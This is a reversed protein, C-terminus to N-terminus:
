KNFVRYTRTPVEQMWKFYGVSYINGVNPKWPDHIRLTTGMGSPDDDGRMGVVVIMHGPSGVGQSYGFADWLMDLMLPSRSLTSRFLDLMWSMPPHVRLGHATAYRRGGTIADDTSSFNKLGGDSAILDPPTRSIVVPVTSRTMMATSAAWCTSNTPQPIFPVDHLIPEYTELDLAANQTCPGAEGDEVLWNANQFRVVAARTLGGYEGDPVLHPSPTLKRNLAEQLARV